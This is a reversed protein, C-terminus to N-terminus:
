SFSHEGLSGVERKKLCDSFLFSSSADRSRPIFGHMESVRLFLLFGSSMWGCWFGCGSIGKSSSLKRQNNLIAMKGGGAPLCQQDVSMWLFVVQPKGWHRLAAPPPNPRVTTGSSTQRHDGRLELRPLSYHRHQLGAPLQQEHLQHGLMYFHLQTSWPPPPRLRTLSTHCHLKLVLVRNIKGLAHKASAIPHPTERQM